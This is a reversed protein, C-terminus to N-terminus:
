FYTNPVRAEPLKPYGLSEAYVRWWDSYVIRRRLAFLAGILLQGVRSQTVNLVGGIEKLTMGGMRMHIIVQQRHNLKRVVENIFGELEAASPERPYDQEYSPLWSPHVDQLPLCQHRKGRLWGSLCNSKTRIELANRIFYAYVAHRICIVAFTSFAGRSPDHEKTARMLGIFGIQFLDKRRVYRYMWRPIRQLILYILGTHEMPDTM